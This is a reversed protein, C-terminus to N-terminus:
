ARCTKGAGTRRRVADIAAEVALVLRYFGGSVMQANSLEARGGTARADDAATFVAAFPVTQRSMAATRERLAPDAATPEAPNRTPDAYLPRGTARLDTMKPREDLTAISVHLRRM